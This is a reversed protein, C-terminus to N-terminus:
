FNQAENLKRQLKTVITRLGTRLLVDEGVGRNMELMEVSKTLFPVLGSMVEPLYEVFTDLLNFARVVSWQLKEQIFWQIIPVLIVQTQSLPFREKFYKLVKRILDKLFEALSDNQKMYIEMSCKLLADSIEKKCAPPTMRFVEQYFEFIIAPREVNNSLLSSKLIGLTFDYADMSLGDPKKTVSDILLKILPNNSVSFVGLYYIFIDRIEREVPKDRRYDLKFLGRMIYPLHEKISCCVLSQLAKDRPFLIQPYVTKDLLQLLFNDSTVRFHLLASCHEVLYSMLKYIHSLSPGDKGKKIKNLICSTYNKFYRQVKQAIQKKLQMDTAKNFSSGLLRYFEICTNIQDNSDFNLASLDPIIEVIRSWRLIKRTLVHMDDSKVQIDITCKVWSQMLIVDLDTIKLKLENILSSNFILCLYRCSINSNVSEKCGFHMFVDQFNQPICNVFSSSLEYTLKTLLEAIDSIIQPPSDTTAIKEIFPYVNMFIAKLTQIAENIINDTNTSSVITQIKQLIGLFIGLIYNLESIGCASFLESFGSGILQYESLDLCSSCKFLEKMNDIYVLLLNMINNKHMSDRHIESYHSCASNFFKSILLIVKEVKFKKDQCIYLLVFVAKWAIIQKRPFSGEEIVSVFECIKSIVELQGASVICLFLSFWNQLGIESIEKMKKPMFKSYIRGKLRRWISNDDSQLQLHLICLFHDFSSDKKLLSFNNIYNFWSLSDKFLYSLSKLENSQMSFTEEMKKIFFDSLLLLIDGFIQRDLDLTNSKWLSSLQVYYSLICRLDKECVSSNLLHNHLLYKITSYGSRVEKSEWFCGSTDYKYLLAVHSTLWFCVEVLGQNHFKASSITFTDFSLEAETHVASAGKTITQIVIQYTNWFSVEEFYFNKKDLLHILMIWFDNVCPCLFPSNTCIISNKYRNSALLSLEYMIFSALQLFSNSQGISECFVENIDSNMQIVSHMSYVILTCNYWVDLCLHYYHYFSKASKSTDNFDSINNIGPINSLHGVFLLLNKIEKVLQLFGNMQHQKLASNCTISMLSSQKSSLEQINALFFNLVKFIDMKLQEIYGLNHEISNAGDLAFSKVIYFSKKIEMFLQQMSTWMCSSSPFLKGFFEITSNKTVKLEFDLFKLFYGSKLYGPLEKEKCSFCPLDHMMLSNSASM